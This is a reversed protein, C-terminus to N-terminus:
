THGAIEQRPHMCYGSRTHRRIRTAHSAPPANDLNSVLFSLMRTRLLLFILYFRLGPDSNGAFTLCLEPNNLGVRVTETSRPLYKRVAHLLQFRLGQSTGAPVTKRKYKTFRAFCLTIFVFKVSGSPSVFVLLAKGMCPQVTIEYSM